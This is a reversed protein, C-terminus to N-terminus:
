KSLVGSPGFLDSVQLQLDPFADPTIIEDQHPRLTLRYGAASPQQHVILQGLTLDMLWYEPVGHQAYLKTKVEADFRASSDAVEVILHIDKPGPHHDPYDKRKVIAIDPQPESDDGLTIPNQVRVRYRTQHGSFYENLRDVVDSHRSGIPTMDFIEGSILETRADHAFVGKEDLAHYEAVSFRHVGPLAGNEKSIVAVM